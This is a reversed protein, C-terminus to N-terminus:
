KSVIFKSRLWVGGDGLVLIFYMGNALHGVSIEQKMEDNLAQESLIEGNLSMIILKSCSGQSPLALTLQDRVPNPYFVLASKERQRLENLGVPPPLEGNFVMIEGTQSSTQKTMSIGIQANYFSMSSHVKSDLSLWTKATDYSVYAGQSNGAILFGAKQVTPKAYEIFSINFFPIGNMKAWTVGGDKTVIFVSDKFTTALIGVASDVFAFGFLSLNKPLITSTDVIMSEWKLGKERVKIFYNGKFRFDKFILLGNHLERKIRYNSKDLDNFPHRPTQVDNCPVKSWSQSGDM